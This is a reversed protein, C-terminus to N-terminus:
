GSGILMHRYPTELSGMNCHIQALKIQLSIGDKQGELKSLYVYTGDSSATNSIAISLQIDSDLSQSTILDLCKKLQKVRNFTPIAITVHM